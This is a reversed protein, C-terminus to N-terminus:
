EPGQSVLWHCLSCLRFPRTPLWGLAVSRLTLSRTSALWSSDSLLWDLAVLSSAHQSVGAPLTHKAPGHQGLLEGGTAQQRGGLNASRIRRMTRSELVMVAQVRSELAPSHNIGNAMSLAKLTCVNWSPRGSHTQIPLAKRFIKTLCAYCLTPPHTHLTHRPLRSNVLRKARLGAYM